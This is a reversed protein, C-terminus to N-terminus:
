GIPKFGSAKVVERWREMDARILAVFDDGSITAVDFAQRELTSKVSNSQLALQVSSGLANVIGAPTRAPVFLGAQALLKADIRDTITPVLVDAEAMACALEEQSMPRDDPNLTVDFLEQMRAEVEPPLRRTVVVRTRQAM